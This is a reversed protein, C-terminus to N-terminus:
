HWGLPLQGPEAGVQNGRLPIRAACVGEPSDLMRSEEQTLLDLAVSYGGEVKAPNGRRTPLSRRPRSHITSGTGQRAIRREQHGTARVLADMAGDPGDMIRTSCPRLPHTHDLLTMLKRVPGSGEDNRAPGCDVPSGRVVAPM